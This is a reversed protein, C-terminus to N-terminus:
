TLAKWDTQEHKIIDAIAVTFVQLRRTISILLFDRM